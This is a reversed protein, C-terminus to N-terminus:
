VAYHLSAEHARQILLYLPRSDRCLEVLEKEEKEYEDYSYWSLSLKDGDIAYSGFRADWVADSPNFTVNVFDHGRRDGLWADEDEGDSFMDLCIAKKIATVGNEFRMIVRYKERAVNVINLDAVADKFSLRSSLEFAIARLCDYNLKVKHSFMVVEEIEGYCDEPINDRLYERIEDDNPYDFRFHYHFRGPRNVLFSNLRGLDNCTVVFLKKGHAMGDFLSLMETQPSAKGDEAQVDGFTKDFEDFMVVCEQEISEIYSAIGQYYTDVIVLPLGDAIARSALLKAFLSKGIGKDGSLIVGLSRNFAAFSKLVKECKAQHAGYVKPEKVEAIESIELFFGSRPDFRIVYAQAPLQDYTKLANSYITFTNGQNIAKM